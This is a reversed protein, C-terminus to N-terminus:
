SEVPSPGERLRRAAKRIRSVRAYVADTELDTISCIEDIERDEIFRLRFIHFSEETLEVRLRELLNRLRSAARARRRPGPQGSPWSACLPEDPTPMSSLKSLTRRHAVLDVFSELGLGREPRWGELLRPGVFLKLLLEQTLDERDARRPRRFWRRLVLAVRREVVPFLRDFLTEAAEEDGDLANEVLEKDRQVDRQVDVDRRVDLDPELSKEGTKM